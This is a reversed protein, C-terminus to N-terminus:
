RRVRALARRLGYAIPLLLALALLGLAQEQRVAQSLAELGAPSAAAAQGAANLLAKALMWLPAAAAVGLGAQERASIGPLTLLLLGSFFVAMALVLPGRWLAFNLRERRSFGRLRIVRDALDLPAFEEGSATELAGGLRSAQAVRQGCSACQRVHDEADSAFIPKAGAALAEADIPDIPRACLSV